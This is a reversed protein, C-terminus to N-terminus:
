CTICAVIHVPCSVTLIFCSVSPGSVPLCLFCVSLDSQSFVSFSHSLYLAPCLSLALSVHLCSLSLFKVNAVLYLQSCVPPAPSSVCLVCLVFLTRFPVFNLSSLVLVLARLSFVLIAYNGFCHVLGFWSM